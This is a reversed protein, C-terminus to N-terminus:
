EINDVDKCTLTDHYQLKVCDYSSNTRSADYPNRTVVPNSGKVTARRYTLGSLHKNVKITPYITCSICQLTWDKLM